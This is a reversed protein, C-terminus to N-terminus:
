TCVPVSGVSVSGIIHEEVPISDETSSDSKSM